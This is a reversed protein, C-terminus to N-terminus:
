QDGRPLLASLIVPGQYEERVYALWKQHEDLIRRMPQRRAINNTGAHLVIADPQTQITTEEMCDAITGGRRVQANVKIDGTTKAYKFISDTAIIIQLSLHVSCEDSM